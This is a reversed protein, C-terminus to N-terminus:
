GSSIKLKGCHVQLMAVVSLHFAIITIYYYFLVSISHLLLLAIFLLVLFSHLLLLAILLLVSIFQLLLLAILLLLFSFTHIKLAIGGFLEYCQVGKM